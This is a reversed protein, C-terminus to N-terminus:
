PHASAVGTSTMGPHLHGHTGAEDEQQRSEAGDDRRRGGRRKGAGNAACSVGGVRIVRRRPPQASVLGHPPPFFPRYATNLRKNAALLTKLARRGSLTLTERHALL